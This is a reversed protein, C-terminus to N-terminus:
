YKSTMEFICFLRVNSVVEYSCIVKIYRGSTIKGASSFPFSAGTPIITHRKSM